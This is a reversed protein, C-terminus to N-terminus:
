SKLAEQVWKGVAKKDVAVKDEGLEEWLMQLVKGATSKSARADESLSGLIKEISARISEESPAAPLFSQLLTIENVLSSHNEPHASHSSPAYLEAAQTRQSICKRLVGIVSKDSPPQSLNLGSKSANTVDALVAKLCTTTPRDKSKMATKLANRMSMEIPSPSFIRHTTHLARCILPQALM